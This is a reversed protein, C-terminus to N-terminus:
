HGAETQAGVSCRPSGARSVPPQPGRPQGFVGLGGGAVPTALLRVNRGGASSEPTPELALTFSPGPRPEDSM